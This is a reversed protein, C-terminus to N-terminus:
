VDVNVCVKSQTANTETFQGDSTFEVRRPNEVRCDVAVQKEVHVFVIELFRVAPRLSLFGTFASM